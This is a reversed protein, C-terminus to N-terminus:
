LGTMLLLLFLTQGRAYMHRLTISVYSQKDVAPPASSKQYRLNLWMQGYATSINFM